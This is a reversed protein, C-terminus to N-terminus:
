RALMAYIESARAAKAAWSHTRAAAIAALSMTSLLEPDAALRELARALAKATSKADTIPVKIGTHPSVVLRAGQHDLAVVACGRAMAEILQSGETDRLSTFLLVDHSSFVEFVDSFPVQGRWEVRSALGLKKIWNAIFQSQVGEGVITCSYDTHTQMQALAELALLVGKRPRLGGLWLVRLKDPNSRRRVAPDVIWDPSVGASSMHEHRKAGLRRVWQHTEENAYLVIASHSVTSRASLVRGTLHRVVLNRMTEITRGGRLHRWFGPPAVQGGGAPGFVFPKGLNWLRSGIHLSGFSVHHVVDFDHRSDLERAAELAADQWRIATSILGFPGVSLSARPTDVFTFHLDAVPAVGLRATIAPEWERATIVWVEHGARSTEIAWNWGVGPESGHSPHCAYASILIKM